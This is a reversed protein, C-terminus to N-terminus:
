VWCNLLYKIDKYIGDVDWIGSTCGDMDVGDRIAYIQVDCGGVINIELVLSRTIRVNERMNDGHIDIIRDIVKKAKEFGKEVIEQRTM